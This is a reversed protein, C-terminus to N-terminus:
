GAIAERWGADYDDKDVGKPQVVTRKAGVPTLAAVRAPDAQPKAPPPQPEKPTVRGTAAKYQTVLEIVEEADGRDYAKQYADRLLKSQTKIWEPLQTVVGDYDPHIAKIQRFHERAESSLSNQIVPALQDNIKKAMEHIAAAFRHELEAQVRVQAIKQARAIDPWEKEFDTLAQREAESLEPVKPLEPEPPKEEKPGPAPPQKAKFDALEQRLSRVYDPEEPLKGEAAPAAPQAPPAPPAPQAPEAPPQPQAPPEQAPPESAPSPEGKDQSVPTQPSESAKEPGAETGAAQTGLAEAFADAFAQDSTSQSDDPPPNVVPDM